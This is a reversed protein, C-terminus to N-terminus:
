KSISDFRVTKLAISENKTRENPRVQIECVFAVRALDIFEGPSKYDYTYAM